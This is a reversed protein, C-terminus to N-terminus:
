GASAARAPQAAARPWLHCELARRRWGRRRAGTRARALQLPRDPRGHGGGAGGRGAGQGPGAGGGSRCELNPTPKHSIWHLAMRGPATVCTPERAGGGSRRGRIQPDYPTQLSAQRPAAVCTPACHSTLSDRHVVCAQLLWHGLTCLCDFACSVGYACLMCIWAGLIAAVQLLRGGIATVEELLQGSRSDLVYLTTDKAGLLVSGDFALSGPAGDM